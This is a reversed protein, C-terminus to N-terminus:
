RPLRPLVATIPNSKIITVTTIATNPVANVTATVSSVTICYILIIAPCLQTWVNDVSQWEYISQLSSFFM